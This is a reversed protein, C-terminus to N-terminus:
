APRGQRFQALPDADDSVEGLNYRARDAPSFGLSSLAQLHLKRANQSRTLLSARVAADDSQMAAARLEVAEDLTDCAQRLMPVDSEALWEPAVKVVFRWL